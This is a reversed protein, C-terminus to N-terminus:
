WGRAASEEELPAYAPKDTGSGPWTRVGLTRLFEKFEPAALADVTAQSWDHLMFFNLPLSM